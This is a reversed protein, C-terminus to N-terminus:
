ALLKLDPSISVSGYKLSLSSCYSIGICLENDSALVRYFLDEFVNLGTFRQLTPVLNDVHHFRKLRM